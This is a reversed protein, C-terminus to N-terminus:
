YANENILLFLGSSSMGLTQREVQIVSDNKNDIVFQQYLDVSSLINM